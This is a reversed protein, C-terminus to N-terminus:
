QVIYGRRVSRGRSESMMDAFDVCPGPPLFGAEAAVFKIPTYLGINRPAPVGLSAESVIVMCSTSTSTHHFREHAVRETLLLAKLLQIQAVEIDSVATSM